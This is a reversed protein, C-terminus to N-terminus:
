ATRKVASMVTTHDRDFLEGIAPYSFGRSRVKRMAEHRARAVHAARGRSAIEDITVHRERAIQEVDALLGRAALRARFDDSTM